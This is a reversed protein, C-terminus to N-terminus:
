ENSPVGENLIKKIRNDAYTAILIPPIILGIYLIGELDFPVLAYGNFIIGLSNRPIEDPNFYNIILYYIYTMTFLCTGLLCGFIQLAKIATLKLSNTKNLKYISYATRIVVYLIAGAIIIYTLYNTVKKLSLYTPTFVDENTLITM